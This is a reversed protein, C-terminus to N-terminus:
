SRKEKYSFLIYLFYFFREGRKEFRDFSKGEWCKNMIVDVAEAEDEVMIQVRHVRTKKKPTLLFM